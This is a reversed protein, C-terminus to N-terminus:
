KFKGVFDGWFFENDIEKYMWINPNEFGTVKVETIKDPHIMAEILALDWLTRESFSGDLHQDWHNLLFDSVPQKGQLQVGADARKVKMKAAVNVPIIHMEVESNTMLDVAQIDMVSNFDIHKAKQKEFDYSSGLWYVVIKAKITPDILVASAVNTLAGLTIVHLKEGAATKYAQKIIEYAAESHQAKDGWDFMRNISGRCVKINRKQLYGLLVLNLRYSAEMTNEVAWQSAQWQTSNIALVEWTPELVARTIAFLDDVENATDADIIVKTKQQSSVAFALLIFVLVFFTKM